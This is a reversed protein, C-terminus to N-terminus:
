RTKRAARSRHPGAKSPPAKTPGSAKAGASPKAAATGGKRLRVGPGDGNQAVFIVGATELTSRVVALTRPYPVRKGAEFDALTAASVQSKGALEDRSWGLMARAGRCQEPTISLDDLM